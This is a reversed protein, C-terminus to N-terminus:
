VTTTGFGFMEQILNHGDIAIEIINGAQVAHAAVAFSFGLATSQRVQLIPNLITLTDAVPQPYV